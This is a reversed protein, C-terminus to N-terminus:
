FLGDSGTDLSAGPLAAFGTGVTNNNNSGVTHAAVTPLPALAYTQLALKTPWRRRELRLLLNRNGAAFVRTPTSAVLKGHRKATLRVRAKVALHFRLQLMTGHLLRSHLHSLLAVAVRTESKPLETQPVLSGVPSPEEPEGSDDPPPADPPLQPLGQDAPRATIPGAFAPDTDVPLDEGEDALHFLWGQTTALWCDHAAPCAIRVVAGRPAGGAPLTQEETVQGTASVHAVLARATPSDGGTAPMLGLWAGGTEPEAAITSVTEGPFLTAGSPESAPGILQSWGGEARRLVTVQGARPESISGGAAAWLAGEVTSLHLFDLSNPEAGNTLPLGFEGELAPQVGEPNIRHLVPVELLEEAEPSVVDEANVRVSEYLHEDFLRMDEIAHGEGAYPEAELSTGNWHLQFAGIQSKPLPDGAFWCDNPTICGAAHMAQYSNVEFAPHAYSAVVQGDAFRCLTDDELPPRIGTGAQVQGPRGDSITWFEEPGAWAIRGDTAGCVNTLEHWERGNYAWLGGPITPPNGDTILLGRNPAWFEVDGIQGLGIPTQSKVGSPSRPPLPQAPQWSAAPEPEAASAPGAHVAALALVAFVLSRKM